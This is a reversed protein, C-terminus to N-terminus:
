ITYPLLPSADLFSYVHSNKELQMLKKFREYQIFLSRVDNFEILM